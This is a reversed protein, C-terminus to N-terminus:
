VDDYLLGVPHLASWKVDIGLEMGQLKLEAAKAKITDHVDIDECSDYAMDYEVGPRVIRVSSISLSKLSQFKGGGAAKLLEEVNTFLVALNENEHQIVYLRELNPPTFQTLMHAPISSTSPLPDDFTSESFLDDQLGFIFAMGVQLIKLHNFSALCQMRSLHRIEADNQIPTGYYTLFRELTSAASAEPPLIQDLSVFKGQRFSDLRADVSSLAEAKWTIELNGLQHCTSVFDRVDTFCLATNLLSIERVNSSAPYMWYLLRPYEQIDYPKEIDFTLRRIVHMTFLPALIRYDRCSDLYIQVAMSKLRRYAEYPLQIKPIEWSEFVMKCYRSFRSDILLGLHELNPLFPLLIALTAESDCQKRIETLWSQAIEDRLCIRRVVQQIDGDVYRLPKPIVRCGQQYEISVSKVLMALSTRSLVTCAFKYIGSYAPGVLDGKRKGHRIM